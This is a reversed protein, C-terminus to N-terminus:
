FKKVNSMLWLQKNLPWNVKLQCYLTICWDVLDKSLPDICTNIDSLLWRCKTTPIPSRTICLQHYMVTSDDFRFTFFIIIFCFLLSMQLQIGWQIKVLVFDLCLCFCQMCSGLFSMCSNSRGIPSFHFFLFRITKFMPSFVILIDFDFHCFIVLNERIWGKLLKKLLFERRQRPRQKHNQDWSEVVGSRGISTMSTMSTQRFMLDDFTKFDICYCFKVCELSLQIKYSPICVKIAELIRSFEMKDENKVTTLCLAAATKQHVIQFCLCTNNWIPFIFVFRNNCYASCTCSRITIKRECYLLSNGDKQLTRSAM